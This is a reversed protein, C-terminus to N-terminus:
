AYSHEKKLCENLFKKTGVKGFSNAMKRLSSTNKMKRVKERIKERVKDQNEELSSLTNLLEVLLFDESVRKPFHPRRRFDFTRGGLQITEYRKHNYVIVKNYLQTLGLGLGNFQSPSYMLFDDNNLFTTVLKKDTPPADGFATKKPYTYLGHQIKVLTNDDCLQALHRDVTNSWKLLDTRRYVQGPRLHKKLANLKNM